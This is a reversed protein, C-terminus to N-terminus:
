HYKFARKQVDRKGDPNVVAVDMLAGKRGGHVTVELTTADVFRVKAVPTDGIHVATDRVFNKGIVSIETGGAAAAYTPTVSDIKPPPLTEYTFGHKIVREDSSPNQVSVDVAGPAAVAPALVRIETPERAGITQALEGGFRVISVRYLHQGTLTVRTGGLTPGREPTIDEVRAQPRVTPEPAPMPVPVSHPPPIDPEDCFPSSLEDPQPPALEAPMPPPVPTVPGPQPLPPPQHSPAEAVLAMIADVDM